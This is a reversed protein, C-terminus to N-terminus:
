TLLELLAKKKEESLSRIALLLRSEIESLRPGYPERVGLEARDEEELSRMLRSVLEANVSRHNLKARDWLRDRLGDPMRIVFKPAQRSPPPTISAM